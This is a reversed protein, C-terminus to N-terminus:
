FFCQGPTHLFASDWIACSFVTSSQALLWQVLTLLYFCALFWQWVTHLFVSCYNYCLSSLVFLTIKWCFSVNVCFSYSWIQSYYYCWILSALFCIYTLPGLLAYMEPSACVIGSKSFIQFSLISFNHRSYEVTSCRINFHSLLCSCSSPPLPFTSESM